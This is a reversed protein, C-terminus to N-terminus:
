VSWAGLLAGLDAGDVIGDGNLDQPVGSGGWAGLLSGLDAGDVVGDGNFDAPLAEGGHFLFEPPIVQTSRNPGAWSLILGAGGGREFFEVRLKHKGQALPMTTRATVMGHLGDNNVVINGGIRIRSGDDSQVALTWLGGEPVDLWGDYVAGVDDSLGSSAFEGDTSPYWVQDVIESAFATFQNWDPIVSVQPLQYYSVELGAETNIPNESYRPHQAEVFVTAQATAGSIPERLTYTFSRTGAPAGVNLQVSVLDRGAPGAGPLLTLADGMSTVAPLAHVVLPDMNIDYDNNLVDLTFTQGTIGLVRDNRAVPAAPVFANQADTVAKKLNARGFGWSENDQEGGWIDCSHLLIHEAHAVSLAPNASRIMGLVGNAVPTAMSTGSAYNYGGSIVSSLISVGPAFLDVGRGFGSFSARADNPDSAGIVLLHEFDFGRHDISSNGAAWMYSCGLGRLYEGTTEQAEYGVGSYSASVVMAGHEGAWQAGSLLAEYSASGSAVESVRIPMITMNWGMGSVGVGNNGSAAACGAVHTGHGHIDTIDGGDIEAVQSVSNFGQVRNLLDEHSIIGTDTVAVIVSPNGTHLDWALASQMMSHHWQDGFRSDNPTVTPFVLWNPHAYQFFGSSMLQAAVRNEPVGPAEPGTAAVVIFEDTQPIHRRSMPQVLQLAKKRQAATLTQLPRVILEGTFEREGAIATFSAAGSAVPGSSGGTKAISAVQLSGDSAFAWGCVSGLAVTALAFSKM